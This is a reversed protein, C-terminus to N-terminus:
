SQGHINTHLVLRMSSRHPTQQQTVGGLGVSFMTQVFPSQHRLAKFKAESNLNLPPWCTTNKCKFYLIKQLRVKWIIGKPDPILSAERLDEGADLLWAPGAADM